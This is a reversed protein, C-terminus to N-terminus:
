GSRISAAPPSTTEANWTAMARPAAAPPRSTSPAPTFSASTAPAMAATAPPTSSPDARREVPESVRHPPVGERRVGAALDGPEDRHLSPLGPELRCGLRLRPPAGGRRREAAGRAAPGQGAGDA